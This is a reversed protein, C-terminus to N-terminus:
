RKDPVKVPAPHHKGFVAERDVRVRMVPRVREVELVNL